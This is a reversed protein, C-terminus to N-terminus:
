ISFGEGFVDKIDDSPLFGGAENMFLIKRNGALSIQTVGDSTGVFIVSRTDDSSVSVVPESAGGVVEFDAGSGTVGYTTVIGYADNGAGYDDVGEEDHADVRTMGKSTGVYLRTGGTTALSAGSVIHLDLIEGPFLAPTSSENYVFDPSRGYGSYADAGYFVEIQNLDRNIHYLTGDDNMQAQFTHSSGAYTNLEIENKIIVTGYADGGYGEMCVTLFLDNIQNGHISSLRRAPLIPLTNLEDLVQRVAGQSEGVFQEIAIAKLGYGDSFYLSNIGSGAKFLWSDNFVEVLDEVILQVTVLNFYSNYSDIDIHYGDYGDIITAGFYSDPGDYPAFFTDTIGDYAKAGRVFVEITDVQIDSDPDLIDFSILASGANIADRAPSENKVFPSAM